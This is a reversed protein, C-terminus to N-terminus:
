EDDEGMQQKYAALSRRLESVFTIQNVSLTLSQFRELNALIAHLHHAIAEVEPSPNKDRWEVGAKFDRVHWKPITAETIPCMMPEMAAAHIKEQDTM